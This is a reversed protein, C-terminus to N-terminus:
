AIASLPWSTRCLRLRMLSRCAMTAMTRVSLPRAPVIAAFGAAVRAAHDFSAALPRQTRRLADGAMAILQRHPQRISQLAYGKALCSEAVRNAFHWGQRWRCALRDHCRCAPNAKRIAPNDLLRCSLLHRNSRCSQSQLACISIQNAKCDLFTIRNIRMKVVNTFISAIRM